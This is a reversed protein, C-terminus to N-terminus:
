QVNSQVGDENFVHLETRDSHKPLVVKFEDVYHDLNHRIKFAWKSNTNEIHESLLQSVVYVMDAEKVEDLAVAICDENLRKSLDNQQDLVIACGATMGAGFNEGVPGLVMVTGGTMYECGHDGIGEVVALAGSNRVAFREGAQGAAFLKGGTAGYLCTNGIIAGRSAVYQINEQPYLSISGGSMGKGVYDNADGQLSIHLGPANWVGLSQGAIGRLYVNVKKGFIEKSAIYSSLSAGVSRDYNKVDAHIDINANELKQRLAALLQQNLVAKDYPENKVGQYHPPRTEPRKASTLIKSLNLSKQFDTNGPIQELLDTRGILQDLTPVGLYALWHRVETAIFEFYQIVREPLGKFHKDRLHSNQTAVGTACNNLHCIRLYKCGLAVMPGTGFGFSDAGLIAGKIVDLGTKLGGDVQLCVRDRLDNEILAQHAEALGIEWPNGAYKVSTTPSAGTGGDHGAITIMDAYAKAVGAAITGVGPGSVLKVSVMAKPNIEKLDFILQALDEISYIDHHPPPSILTTGPKAHRLRAIEVSVKAGPLQGGEGPKAGQAVKIQLVEANVLYKATVGFRGSAVQKIKSVRDTGFRASDEGGEGSNSRGGIRNMAIALAEHAETSLAGISMAATDFRKQIAASPEVQSDNLPTDSKVLQLLDRLTAVPRHNVTDAFTKYDAYDGSLLAHQLQQVVDPNYAHYEGGHVYKFQGQRSLGSIQNWALACQRKQYLELQEFSIGSISCRMTPFCRSMVEESFGLVEFLRAGRYSSITSIGMKSLVKLLGKDLAGYYNMRAEILDEDLLEQSHLQSIMQISLYPYIATAGLGI